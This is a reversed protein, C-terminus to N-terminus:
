GPLTITFTAGKHLESAVEIKGNHKKIISYVIALGLGTGKEKTTFFPDFIRPFDKPLIGKGTDSVKIQVSADVTNIEINLFGRGEMADVANSFLNIFVQELLHRDGLIEIDEPAKIDYKISFLDGLMAMYSFVDKIMSVINIKKFEPVKERAFELLDSVIRKVRLTQSFIDKVTEKVISPCTEQEGIEKSLVQAALYINNLPNNLEHAVGSALTGISALKRGQLLEENKKALERDRNVLDGEMKNFSTILMSVEDQEAPITLPSFDGKGAKKIADTLIKLRKVVSHSVAFLTGLGVVFFVPFLILAATQSLGLAKEVKGRAGTDINKSITLMEEGNKRLASIEANLEQLDEIAPDGPQLSFIGRLLEANVSPRELITSEILPFFASYRPYLPKLRAFERHFNWFLIEIHNFRQSYEEIKNELGLLLGRNYVLRNQELLPKVKETYGSYEEINNRYKETKEVDAANSLFNGGNYTHKAEKVILKIDQIYRYVSKVETLDGYLFFNKEHRRLQLSKSRITDSLELYRIEKKIEVFNICFFISFVVITISSILFSIIIKKKLSM